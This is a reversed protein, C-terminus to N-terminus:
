AEVGELEVAVRHLGNSVTHSASRILYRGVIGTIPENMDLLRGARIENHGLLECSVSEKVRNLESLTTAAIQRAQAVDKQDVTVVETMLGFRAINAIDERQAYTRISEDGDAVVMVRNKMDEISLERTPNSVVSAAPFTNTNGSLQVMPSILLDNQKGIVLEDKRMEMRLKQGTEQSAQALIDLLIDSVTMDKYIHTILTNIKTVAYKIGFRDLLKMIAQSAALRRFQIVTENKNLYWSRDFCTVSKSFRGARSVLVVIFYHLIQGGYALVVQDGTEVIDSRSFTPDDNAVIDFALEMGLTDVNSSWSLNGVLQTVNRRVGSKYVYLEHM